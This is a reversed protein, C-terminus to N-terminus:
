TVVGLKRGVQRFAELARDLHAREHAASIQVRIRAEKVASDGLGVLEFGPMGVAMQVEVGVPLAEIDRDVLADAVSRAFASDDDVVLVNHCTRGGDPAAGENTTTHM